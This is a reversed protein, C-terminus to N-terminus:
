FGWLTFMRVCDSDECLWLHGTNLKKKPYLRRTQNWPTRGWAELVIKNDLGNSACCSGVKSVTVLSLSSINSLVQHSSSIQCDLVNLMWPWKIHSQCGIWEPTYQQALKKCALDIPRRCSQMQNPSFTKHVKCSYFACVPGVRLQIQNIVPKMQM